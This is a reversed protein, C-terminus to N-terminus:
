RKGREFIARILGFRRDMIKALTKANPPEFRRANRIPGYDSSCRAFENDRSDNIVDVLDGRSGRTIEKNVDEVAEIPLFYHHNKDFLLDSILDSLYDRALEATPRQLSRIESRSKGNRAGVVIADFQKESLEGAAALVIASLFAGLFDKVRADERLVLRLSASRAPSFFGLSGHIKAVRPPARDDRVDTRVPISLEPVIRQARAFEDGRGIRVEQWEDLGICGASHTREIWQEM